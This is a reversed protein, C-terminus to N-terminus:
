SSAATGAVSALLAEVPGGARVPARADGGADAAHDHSRRAGPRDPPPRDDYDVLVPTAGARVVAVATAIFTNAPMIVEDGRGSGSARLALELADTGNAVGVCHACGLVRRLSAEFEASTM